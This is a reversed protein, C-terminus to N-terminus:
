VPMRIVEQYAEIVKNRVEMTANLAISAKQATIMVDHLEVDGGTVLKETMVDSEQQKNNVGDIAAKLFEGFNQQAEYPTSTPITQNEMKLVGTSQAANFISQIAM